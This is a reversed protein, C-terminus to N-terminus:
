WHHFCSMNKKHLSHYIEKNRKKSFLTTAVNMLQWLLSPFCSFTHKGLPDGTRWGFYSVVQSEIKAALSIPVTHTHTNTQTLLCLCTCYCECQTVTVIQGM